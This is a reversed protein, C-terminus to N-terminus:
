LYKNILIDLIYSVSIGYYNSVDKIKSISTDSLTVLKKSTKDRNRTYNCNDLIKKVQLKM